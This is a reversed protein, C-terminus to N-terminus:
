SDHYVIYDMIEIYLGFKQMHFSEHIIHYVYLTIKYVGPYDFYINTGHMTVCRYDYLKNMYISNNKIFGKNNLKIQKDVHRIEKINDGIFRYIYTNFRSDNYFNLRVCNNGYAILDYEVIRKITHTHMYNGNFTIGTYSADKYILKIAKEIRLFEDMEKKIKYILNIIDEPIWLDIGEIYIM